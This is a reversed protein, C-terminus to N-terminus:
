NGRKEIMLRKIFETKIGDMVQILYMGSQVDAPIDISDQFLQIREELVARGRMDTIRLLRPKEDTFIVHLVSSAPNPYLLFGNTNNEIFGTGPNTVVTLFTTDSCGNAESQVLMLTHTSTTDWQVIITDTGQGSLINGGSATWNLSSISPTTNYYAYTNGAIVVTAGSITTPSPANLTNIVLSDLGTCGNTDTGIVVYSGGTGALFPIANQIGSSWQYTAAGAGTLTVLANSCLTDNPLASATVLPLSNVTVTVDSTDVCGNTDTGAILYSTTISPSATVPNGTVASLGTAPSWSYNVAGSSSLMISDGICIAVDNGSNVPPLSFVQVAITDRGRCNNSDRGTVIYNRTSTPFASVTAGTTSGLGLAPSWTYTSAGTATLNVTDGRCIFVDQGAQVTPLNWVNVTV